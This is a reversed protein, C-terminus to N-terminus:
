NHHAHQRSPMILSIGLSITIIISSIPKVGLRGAATISHRLRGGGGTRTLEIGPPSEAPCEWWFALRTKAWLSSLVSPIPFSSAPLSFLGYSQTIITTLRKLRAHWKPPWGFPMEHSFLGLSSCSIAVALSYPWFALLLPTELPRLPWSRCNLQTRQQHLGKRTAKSKAVLMWHHEWSLLQIQNFM